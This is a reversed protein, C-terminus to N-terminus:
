TRVSNPPYNSQPPRRWAKARSLQADFGLEPYNNLGYLVTRYIITEKDIVRDAEAVMMGYNSIFFNNVNKKNSKTKM